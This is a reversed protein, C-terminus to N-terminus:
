CIVKTGRRFYTCHDTCLKNYSCIGWLTEAYYDKSNRCFLPNRPGKPLGPRAKQVRKTTVICAHVNFARFVAAFLM